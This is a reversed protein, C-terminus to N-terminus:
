EQPTRGKSRIQMGEKARITGEVRAGEHLELKNCSIDGLIHSGERLIIDGERTTVDGHIRTGNGVVVGERARISGFLNVNEGISIDVARFNGHLRCKNKVIVPTSVRWMEDSIYSGRPIVLPDEDKGRGKEGELIESLLEEAAEEEGLRLLQTLYMFLFIITPLPNRINIWGNAEFGEEIQVDDGIDLDGGVALRGSISVREGLYADQGVIVNGEIECWIDVRCEREVEIDGEFRVREGVLINQSRVGFSINSQGGIIVDGPAVLDREEAITGTPIILVDLPDEGVAM